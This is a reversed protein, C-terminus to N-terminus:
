KAGAPRGNEETVPISIVLGAFRPTKAPTQFVKTHCGVCGAGLPIAGARRYYGDEVRDYAAKGEAIEEAAKKEFASKAEHNISMAPTNVAIWRSQIGSDKEIQEFVDEMARAPLTKGEHRFYYHHTVVLTNSYIEHMLKARDRAEAVSVRGGAPKAAEAPPQAPGKPPDAPVALGSGLAAIVGATLCWCLIRPRM